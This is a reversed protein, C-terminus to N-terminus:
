NYPKSTQEKEYSFLGLKMQQNQSSQIVLERQDL